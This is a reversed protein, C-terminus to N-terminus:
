NNAMLHDTQQITEAVPKVRKVETYFHSYGARINDALHLTTILGDLVCTRMRTAPVPFGLHALYVAIGVAKMLTSKGAMNAGTSFNLRRDPRFSLDNPTPHNLLPHFVGELLLAEDDCFEPFTFGHKRVAIAIADYADLLYVQDLLNLTEHHYKNRLLYDIREVHYRGM